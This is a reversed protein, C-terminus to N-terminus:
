FHLYVPAQDPHVILHNFDRGRQPLTQKGGTRTTLRNREQHGRQTHDVSNAPDRRPQHLLLPLHRAMVSGRSMPYAENTLSAGRGKKVSQLIGQNMRPYM